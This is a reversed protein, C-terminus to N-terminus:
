WNPDPPNINNAEPGRLIRSAKYPPWTALTTAGITYHDGRGVLLRPSVPEIGVRPLMNKKECSTYTSLWVVCYNVTLYKNTNAEPCRRSIESRRILYLELSRKRKVTRDWAYLLITRIDNLFVHEFIKILQVYMVGKGVSGSDHDRIENGSWERWSVFCVRQESLPAEPASFM